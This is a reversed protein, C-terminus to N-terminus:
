ITIRNKIKFYGRYQKGYRSCWKVKGGVSYFLELKEMNKGVSKHIYLMKIIAMRVPTFHHKM